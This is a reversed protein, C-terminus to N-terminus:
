PEAGLALRIGFERTRQVVSYALIGYLGVAALLTAVGAFAASLVTLIRDGATTNRVTEKMTRLDEVPLNPDLRAVVPQVVAMLQKPQLGGRVYFTMGGIRDDQRYPFYYLPPIDEKVGNYKTNQVLGVIEIDLENNKQSAKIAMRKGVADRGLHFN